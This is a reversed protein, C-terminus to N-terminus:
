AASASASAAKARRGVSPAPASAMRAKMAGITSAARCAGLCTLCPRDIRLIAELPFQSGLSPAQKVDRPPLANSGAHSACHPFGYTTRTDSIPCCSRSTRGVCGAPRRTAFMCSFWPASGAKEPAERCADRFIRTSASATGTSGSASRARHTRRSSSSRRRLATLCCSVLRWGPRCAQWQRHRRTWECARKLRLLRSNRSKKTQRCLSRM